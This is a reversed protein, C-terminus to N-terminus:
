PRLAAGATRSARRRSAGLQICGLCRRKVHAFYGGRRYFELRDDRASRIELTPYGSAILASMDAPILVFLAADDNM